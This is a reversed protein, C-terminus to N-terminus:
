HVITAGPPTGPKSIPPPTAATGGSGITVPYGQSNPVNSGDIVYLYANTGTPFRGSRVTAKISTSSWSDVTSIALNTCSSYSSKNGIEIRAAANPGSALYVDDIVWNHGSSYSTGSRAYGILNIRDWARVTHSSNFWPKYNKYSRTVHGSDSVGQFMGDTGSSSAGNGKAWLSWRVPKDWVWSVDGDMDFKSLDADNSAVRYFKSSTWTPSVLDPASSESYGSNGYMLWFHKMASIDPFTKTTSASPFKYGPPVYAISSVFVEQTSPFTIQSGLRGEEGICRVGKGNSLKQDSFTINKSSSWKGIIAEYPHVNGTSAKSFDDFLVIKPGGTGFGTGTVTIQKSDGVTGSVSTIAPASYASLPVLLTLLFAIFKM